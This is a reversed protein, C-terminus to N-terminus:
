KLDISYSLQSLLEYGDWTTSFDLAQGIPVVRCLGKISPNTALKLLEQKDVGWYSLTQLKASFEEIVEDYSGFEFLLYFFNGAHYDMLASLQGKVKLVGIRDRILDGKSLGTSSMLQSAVLLENATQISIPQESALKNLHTILHNQLNNKGKWLIARPSSCAQQSYAKSDRWLAEAVDQADQESDLADGNILAMSHRDAFSIDRCRPQCPLARIANVSEDGGWIVRGDAKQSLQAGLTGAKDFRLFLNSKAILEYEKDSLLRDLISLLVDQLESAQSAVRVINKNGMLLSCVWSYVFMTDVNTPTFHLVLGLARHHKQKDLTNLNEINSKRLWFGLAVLEPHQKANSDKLLTESLRQVFGLTNQCFASLPQSEIVTEVSGGSPALLTHESM